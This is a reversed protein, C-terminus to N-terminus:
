TAKESRRRRSPCQSSATAEELATSAQALGQWVQGGVIITSTRTLRQRSSATTLSTSAQSTPSPVPPAPSPAGGAAANSRWLSTVPKGGVNSPIIGKKVALSWDWRFDNTQTKYSWFTYGIGKDAAAAQASFFDQYFEKGGQSDPDFEAPASDGTCSTLQAWVILLMSMSPSLSWEGIFLPTNTPSSGALDQKKAFDLYGSRTLTVAPNWKLYAHGDYMTQELSPLNTTPDYSGWSKDQYTVVLCRFASGRRSHPSRRNRRTLAGSCTVGQAEETDRVTKLFKPYYESVLGAVPRDFLPLAHPASCRSIPLAKPDWQQLPENVAEIAFVSEWGPITYASAIFM